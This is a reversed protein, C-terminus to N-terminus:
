GGAVFNPCVIDAPLASLYRWQNVSTGIADGTRGNDQERLGSVVAGGRQNKPHTARLPPHGAGM